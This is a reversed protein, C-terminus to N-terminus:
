PHKSVSFQIFHSLLRLLEGEITKSSGIGSHHVSVVTVLKLQHHSFFTEGDYKLSIMFCMSHLLPKLLSFLGM